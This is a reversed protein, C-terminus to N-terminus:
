CMTMEPKRWQRESSVDAIQKAWLRIWEDAGRPSGRDTVTCRLVAARNMLGACLELRFFMHKAPPAHTTVAEAVYRAM